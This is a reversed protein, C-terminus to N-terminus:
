SEIAQGNRHFLHLRRDRERNRTHKLLHPLTDFALRLAHLLANQVPRQLLAARLLGRDHRTSLGPRQEPLDRVLQHERLDALSKAPSRLQEDRASRRQTLLRGVPEERNANADKLAVAQGLGRGYDGAVGERPVLWIRD